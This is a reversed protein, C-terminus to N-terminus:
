HHNEALALGMLLATLGTSDDSAVPRLGKDGDTQIASAEVSHLLRPSTDHHLRGDLLLELLKQLAPTMTNYGLGLMAHPINLADLTRGLAPPGWADVAMARLDFNDRMQQLVEDAPEGHEFFYAAVVYAGGEEAAPFVFACVSEFARRALWGGFCARGKLADFDIEGGPNDYWVQMGRPLLLDALTTTETTVPM